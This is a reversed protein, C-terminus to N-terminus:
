ILTLASTLSEVPVADVKILKVTFSISRDMVTVEGFPPSTNSVPSVSCIM